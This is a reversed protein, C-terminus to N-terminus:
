TKIILAIAYYPPVADSNETNGTTNHTHGSDSVNATDSDTVGTTAVGMGNPEAGGSGQYLTHTHGSDSVSAYGTDTAVSSIAHQHSIGGGTQAAAGEITSKAIGGVDADACVIVKNRFDPINFTTTGNGAGHKTGLIAFLAAYTTRSIAAGNCFLYGAPINAICGGWFKIEGTIATKDGGFNEM